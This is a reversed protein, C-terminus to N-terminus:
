ATGRILRAFFRLMSLMMLLGVGLDAYGRGEGDPLAMDILLRVMGLGIVMQLFNKM